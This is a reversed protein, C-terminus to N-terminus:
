TALLLAAWAALAAGTLTAAFNVADNGLWHWGSQWCTAGGCQCLPHRETTKGCAECKYSAQVTAGLWSDVLAGAVGCLPLLAIAPLSHASGTLWNTAGALLAILAAGGIAGLVGWGTIAGSTGTPVPKWNTIRRPLTRALVGLETSWTDANAAALAGAMALWAADLNSAGFVVAATAAVGGNALTQLLDRQSGKSFQAALQAKRLGGARSLGSSSVFFGILLAAGPLGAGGFVATGVILAGLAGSRSLARQRLGLWGILAALAAGIFYNQLNLDTQRLQLM